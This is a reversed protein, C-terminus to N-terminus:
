FVCDFEYFGILTALNNVTSPLPQIDEEFKLNTLKKPKFRDSYSNNIEQSLKTNFMNDSETDLDIYNLKSDIFGDDVSEAQRVNSLCESIDKILPQINNYISDLIKIKDDAQLPSLSVLTNVGNDNVLITVSTSHKKNQFMAKENDCLKNVITECDDSIHFMKCVDSLFYWTQNSTDTITRIGDVEVIGLADKTIDKFNTM